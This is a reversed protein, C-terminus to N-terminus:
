IRESNGYEPNNRVDANSPMAEDHAALTHNIGGTVNYGSENSKVPGTAHVGCKNLRFEGCM